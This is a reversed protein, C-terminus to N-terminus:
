IITYSFVLIQVNFVKFVLAPFFYNGSTPFLKLSIIMAPCQVSIVRVNQACFKLIIILGNGTLGGEGGTMGVATNMGNYIHIVIVFNVTNDRV